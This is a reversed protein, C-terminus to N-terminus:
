QRESVDSTARIVNGLQTGFEVFIVSSSCIIDNALVSVSVLVLIQVDRFGMERESKGSKVM